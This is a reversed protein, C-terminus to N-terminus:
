RASRAPWWPRRAAEEAGAALEVGAARLKGLRDLVGEGARDEPGRVLAEDDALGVLEGVVQGDQELEDEAGIEALGLCAADGAGLRAPEEARGRRIKAATGSLRRRHLLLLAIAVPSPLPRVLEAGQGAAM